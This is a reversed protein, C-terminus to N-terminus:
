IFKRLSRKLKGCLIASNQIEHSIWAESFGQNKERESQMARLNEIRASLRDIEKQIDAKTPKETKPFLM